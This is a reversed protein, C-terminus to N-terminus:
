STTFNVFTAHPKLVFNQMTMEGYIVSAANLSCDHIIKFSWVYIQIPTMSWHGSLRQTEWPVTDSHNNISWGTQFFFFFFFFVWRRSQDDSSQQLRSFTTSGIPLVDRTKSMTSTCSCRSRSSISCSEKEPTLPFQELFFNPHYQAFFLRRRWRGTFPLSAITIFFFKRLHGCSCFTRNIQGWPRMLVTNDRDSAWVYIQMPILSCELRQLRLSYARATNKRGFTKKTADLSVLKDIHVCSSRKPRNKQTCTKIGIEIPTEAM